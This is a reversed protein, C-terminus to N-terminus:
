PGAKRAIFSLIAEMDNIPISTQKGTDMDKLLLNGSALEDEGIIVTFKAGSGDATKLASRFSIKDPDLDARVGNARLKSLLTIGADLAGAGIAAIFVDPSVPGGIAIQEEELALLLREFGGAFGIAPVDRGGIQKVLANYRGGGALSNQAGIGAYIVEFATNTYYDLGRVIRPNVTFPIDLLDLYRKVAEFHTACGPDLYDLQSPANKAIASCAAVKCDLLRRPKIGIRKNCDECLQTLFPRFYEELANDYTKSCQPCGVSNIELRIKKLGLGALYNWLIAIVEADVFPHDSGFFEVGYQYFQRYRGAQPRDYRFMPGIYFLRTRGGLLDMRNEVYSRVVPATGEPRLAFQRGKRDEFRYMEKQVVDSSEGSSREFLGAMEFIPTSIEQYGYLAAIERFTGTVKQWRASQPPVIDFTGRPIKFEM